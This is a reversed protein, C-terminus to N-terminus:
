REPSPYPSKRQSDCRSDQAKLYLLQLTATHPSSLHHRDLLFSPKHPQNLTRQSNIDHATSCLVFMGCCRTRDYVLASRTKRTPQRARQQTPPCKRRGRSPFCLRIHITDATSRVICSCRLHQLSQLDAALETVFTIHVYLWFYLSLLFVPKQVSSMPDM